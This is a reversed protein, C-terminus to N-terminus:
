LLLIHGRTRQLNLSLCLVLDSDGFCVPWLHLARFWAVDAVRGHRSALAELLLDGTAFQGIGLEFSGM